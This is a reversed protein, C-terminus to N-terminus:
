SPDRKRRWPSDLGRSSPVRARTRWRPTWRGVETTSQIGKLREPETRGRTSSRGRWCIIPFAAGIDQPSVSAGSQGRMSIISRRSSIAAHSRPKRAGRLQPEGSCTRGTTPSCASRGQKLLQAVKKGRAPSALALHEKAPLRYTLCWCVNADPRKPGLMTKIDEFTDAPRVEISM